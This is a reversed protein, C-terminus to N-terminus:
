NTVTMGFNMFKTVNELSKNSVLLNHNQVANQHCPMDLYKINETNVKLGFADGQVVSLKSINLAKYIACIKNCTRV